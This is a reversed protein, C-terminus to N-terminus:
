EEKFWNPNKAVKGCKKCVFFADNFVERYIYDHGEHWCKIHKKLWIYIKKM